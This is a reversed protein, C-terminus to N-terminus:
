QRFSQVVQDTVAVRNPQNVREDVRQIELRRAKGADLGPAYSAAGQECVGTLLVDSSM